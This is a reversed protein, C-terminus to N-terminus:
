RAVDVQSAVLAWGQSSVRFEFHGSHLTMESDGFSDGRHFAIQREREAPLRHSEGPRLAFSEGDVLYFIEGGSDFPNLIVLVALPLEARFRTVTLEVLSFRTRSRILRSAVDAPFRAACLFVGPQQARRLLLTQVSLARPMGDSFGRGRHWPDNLTATATTPLRARKGATARPTMRRRPLSRHFKDRKRANTVDAEDTKAAVSQAPSPQPTAQLSMTRWRPLQGTADTAQATERPAPAASRIRTLFITWEQADNADFRATASLPAAAQESTSFGFLHALARGSVEHDELLAANLHQEAASEVALFRQLDGPTFSDGPALTSSDEALASRLLAFVIATTEPDGQRPTDSLLAYESADTTTVPRTKSLTEAPPQAELEGASAPEQTITREVILVDGSDDADDSTEAKDGTAAAAVNPRPEPAFEPVPESSVANMSRPVEAAQAPFLHRFQVAILLGFSAFAVVYLKQKSNRSQEHDTSARVVPSPANM